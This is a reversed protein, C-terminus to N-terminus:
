QEDKSRMKRRMDAFRAFVTDNADALRELLDCALPAIVPESNADQWLPALLNVDLGGNRISYRDMDLPLAADSRNGHTHPQTPSTGTLLRESEYLKFMGFLVSLSQGIRRQGDTQGHDGFTTIASVKWRTDLGALLHESQEAWLRVFLEPAHTPWERKRLVSILCASLLCLESKGVFEKSIQKKKFLYGVGGDKESPVIQDALAELDCDLPPLWKEAGKLPDRRNDWREIITKFGNEYPASM